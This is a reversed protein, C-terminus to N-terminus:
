GRENYYKAIAELAENDCDRIIKLAMNLGDAYGSMYLNNAEKEAYVIEMKILRIIKENTTM